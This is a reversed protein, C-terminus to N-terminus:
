LRTWESLIGNLKQSSHLEDADSRTTITPLKQCLGLITM